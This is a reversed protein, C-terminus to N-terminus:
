ASIAFSNEFSSPISTDYECIFLLKTNLIDLSTVKDPNLKFTNVTSLLVNVEVSLSNNKM